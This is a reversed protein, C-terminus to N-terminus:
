VGYITEINMSISNKLQWSNDGVKKLLLGDPTRSWQIRDGETIGLDSVASAPIVVRATYSCGSKVFMVKYIADVNERKM